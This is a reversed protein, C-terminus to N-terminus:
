DMSAFLPLADGQEAAHAKAKAWLAHALTRTALVRRLAVSIEASVDKAGLHAAEVLDAM